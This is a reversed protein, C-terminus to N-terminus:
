DRKVIIPETLHIRLNKQISRIESYMKALRHYKEILELNNKNAKYYIPDGTHISSASWREGLDDNIRVDGFIKRIGTITGQDMLMSIVPINVEEIEDSM